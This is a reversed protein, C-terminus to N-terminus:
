KPQKIWTEQDVNLNYNPKSIELEIFIDSMNKDYHQGTHVIIENIENSFM